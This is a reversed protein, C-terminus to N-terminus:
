LKPPIIVAKVEAGRNEIAKMLAYLARQIDKKVWADSDFCVRVPRDVFCVPDFEQHLDWGGDTWCWVGTIGIAPYGHQTLCAAKKEGETLWLERSPDPLVEKVSPLIYLHVGTGPKQFYKMSGQPPFLRYRSFEDVGPFPFELISECAGLSPSISEFETSPVSRCAMISISEDNLASARLFDLHEKLLAM